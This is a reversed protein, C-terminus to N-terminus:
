DKEERETVLLLDTLFYVIVPRAEHNYFIKLSEESKFDRKADAIKVETSGFM